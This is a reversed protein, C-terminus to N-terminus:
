DEEGGERRIKPMRTIQKDAGDFLEDEKCMGIAGVFMRTAVEAKIANDDAIIERLFTAILLVIETEIKDATGHMETEHTTLDVRVM